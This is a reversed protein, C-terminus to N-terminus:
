KILDVKISKTFYTKENISIANIRVIYIGSTLHSANWLTSHLGTSEIGNAVLEVREGLTNFIEIKVHSESPLKYSITTSPNFPNPYNQSVSFDCLKTGIKNKIDTLIFKNLCIGPSETTTANNGVLSGDIVTTFNQIQESISSHIARKIVVNGSNNSHIYTWYNSNENDYYGCPIGGNFTLIDDHLNPFSTYTGKLSDSKLAITSGGRSIYLVYDTGNYFIDPDSATQPSTELNVITRNGKQLDFHTGDSGEEEIASDFYKTCPYSQCGAPDGVTGTSNLFFLVIKGNKDVIASPDVFNVMQKNSDLVGVMVPNADWINTTKDYRMVNGPTYIYLKNKRIIVDPVSGKYPVFNPVLSWNVGDDSEALNVM